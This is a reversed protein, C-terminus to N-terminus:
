RTLLLRRRTNPVLLGGVEYYTKRPQSIAWQYYQSIEAPSLVRNFMAGEAILANAYYYWPSPNGPLGGIAGNTGGFTGTAISGQAQLVGNVYLRFDGTSTNATLAVFYWNGCPFIKPTAIHVKGGTTRVFGSFCMQYSPTSTDCGHFICFGSTQDSTFTAIIANQGAGQTGKGGGWSGFYGPTLPNTWAMMTIQTSGAPFIQPLTTYNQTNPRGNWCIVNQNGVSGPGYIVNTDTGKYGNGSNDISSGWLQWYGKLTPDGQFFRGISGRYANFFPLAM